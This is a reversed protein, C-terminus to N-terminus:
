TEAMIDLLGGLQKDDVTYNWDHPNTQAENLSTGICYGFNFPIFQGFAWTFVNVSSDPYLEIVKTGPKCFLTSCMSSGMPGVVFEAQQYAAITEPMTLEENRVVSFGMPQLVQMIETENAIKRGPANARSVFLKSGLGQPVKGEFPLLLDRVYDVAWRPYNGSIGPRSPILMRDATWHAHKCCDAIRPSEIGLLELTEKQFKAFPGSIIFHDASRWDFGAKELIGLRPLVDFLFHGFVQGAPAALVVATGHLHQPRVIYPQQFIEYDEIRDRFEHSMDALVHNDPGVITGARGWCRGDLYEVVFTPPSEKRLECVFKPHLESELYVPPQRILIEAPHATHFKVRSDNGPATPSNQWAEFTSWYGSPSPCATLRDKMFRALSM